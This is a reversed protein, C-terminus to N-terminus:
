KQKSCFDISIQSAANGNRGSRSNELFISQFCTFCIEKLNEKAKKAFICDETGLTACLDGM